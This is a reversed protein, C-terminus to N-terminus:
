APAHRLADEGAVRWELENLKYILQHADFEEIFPIGDFEKECQENAYEGAKELTPFWRRISGQTVRYLKEM